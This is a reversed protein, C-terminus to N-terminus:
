STSSTTSFYEYDCVWNIVYGFTTYGVVLNLNDGSIQWSATPVFAPDSSMLNIAPLGHYDIQTFATGTPRFVGVSSEAWTAYTAVNNVIGVIKVKVVTAPYRNLVFPVNITFLTGTLMLSTQLSTQGKVIDTGTWNALIGKQQYTGVIHLVNQPTNTGIGVNISGNGLIITNANVTTTLYGLAVSNLANATAGNGLAIANSNISGSGTGISIANVGSSSAGNGISISGTNSVTANTGLSISNTGSTISGNGISVSNTNSSSSSTGLSISSTGSALAGNGISIANSNSVVSGTGFAMSNTILAATPQAQYGIFLCNSITTGINNYGAQYGLAINGDGSVLTQLAEYGVAVNSSGNSQSLSLAGIAVNYNTVTMSSLSSEGIAVNQVGSLNNYLANSGFASNSNGTLNSFLANSGFADNGSATNNKLANVGFASNSAGTTVASLSYYGFASNSNGISISALSKTGIATNLTGIVSGSGATQGVFVDSGNDFLITPFNPAYYDVGPVARSLVGTSSSVTNKLLGTTLAGLSQANPLGANVTQVIYKADAPANGGSDDFSVWTGAERFNFQATTTNYIVMGDAPSTLADRETGTMRSILLAGTTSQLEVLASPTTSSSPLEGTFLSCVQSGPGFDNTIFEVPMLSDVFIIGVDNVFQAHGLNGIQNVLSLPGHGTELLLPPVQTISVGSDAIVKGTTDAFVAIDNAVSSNPGVVNGTGAVFTIWTGGTRLNFASDDTSYVMMGDVDTLDDRQANTMRPILLAGLTSNIELAASVPQNDVKTFNPISDVSGGPATVTDTILVGSTFTSGSLLNINSMNNSGM